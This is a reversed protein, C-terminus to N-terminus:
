IVSFTATGAPQTQPKGMEQMMLERYSQSNLYNTLMTEQEDSGIPNLSNQNLADSSLKEPNSHVSEPSPKAADPKPENQKHKKRHSASNNVESLVELTAIVSVSIAVIIVSNKNEMKLKRLIYYVIISYISYKYFSDKLLGLYEIM